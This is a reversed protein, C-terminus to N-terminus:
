QTMRRLVLTSTVGGLAFNNKIVTNLTRKTNKKILNIKACDHDPTILNKTPIVEQRKLMELLVISELSGAAGLTHGIHGKISSVPIDPGVTDFIAKAEARDGAVTATAHACVYDVENSTIGAERMANKMARAMANEHPNAIHSADNINGFGTIEGLINANREVASEYDELIVVGAGGGCVVGDRDQDFPRPSSEPNDNQCSAARILDFIGTVTHHVEDAGGCIMVKQRGTQVMIYGLGIAQLSSACACNTSWQEGTIGLALSVNASCTHGMMRFFAGSKIHEIVMNPLFRSYFNEYEQPSGTTSGMVVGTTGSHLESENLGAEKIAERAAVTSYLAMPGMTRRLNRPLIKKVDFDPVPAALRSNLGRIHTWENMTKIASNGAWINDILTDVGIGFPSVAGRGTIVVRKLQM